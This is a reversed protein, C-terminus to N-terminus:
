QGKAPRHRVVVIDATAVYEVGEWLFKVLKGASRPVNDLYRGIEKALLTRNRKLQWSQFFNDENVLVLFLRNSADFRREGQNEYLWRILVSPDSIAEEVLQLRFSKVDSILKRADEDPQDAIIGWLHELLDADSLEADIALHRKRAEQKLLTLEPRLGKARRRDKVYGEPLYTVKLDFPVERVFFDIKKVLGVAPLVNAHEKFIDEIIISTWHNFWSCRVYGRMSELLENDIRANLDDYAQIKKVYNDVITKELSNQHLGGWYFEKMKYLENILIKEQKGRVSREEQFIVKISQKIQDTTIASNYLAPFLERSGLASVDINCAKALSILHEARSLSRLFLFRLGAESKSLETIADARYKANASEFTLNM